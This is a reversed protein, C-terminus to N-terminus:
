KGAPLGAASTLKPSDTFKGSSNPIARDSNPAAVMACRSSTLTALRRWSAPSSFASPEDPALDGRGDAPLRGRHRQGPDRDARRDADRRAPHEPPHEGRVEADHRHRHDSGSSSAASAAPTSAAALTSAATGAMSAARDCGPSSSWASYATAGSRGIRAASVTTGTSHTIASIAGNQDPRSALRTDAIASGPRTATSRPRKGTM